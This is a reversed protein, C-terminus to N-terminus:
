ISPLEISGEKAANTEEPRKGAIMVIASRIAAKFEYIM